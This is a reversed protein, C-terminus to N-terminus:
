NLTLGRRARIPRLLVGPTVGGAGGGAPPEGSVGATLGAPHDSVNPAHRSLARGTKTLTSKQSGRCPISQAEQLSPLKLQEAECLCNHVNRKRGTSQSAAEPNRDSCGAFGRPESVCTGSAPEFGAVFRGPLPGEFLAEGRSKIRRGHCLPLSLVLGLLLGDALPLTATQWSILGSNSPSDYFLPITSPRWLKEQRPLRNWM